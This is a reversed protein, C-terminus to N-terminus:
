PTAKTYLRSLLESAAEWRVRKAQYAALVERRSYGSGGHQAGMATVSLGKFAAEARELDDGKYNELAKRLTEFADQDAKNM